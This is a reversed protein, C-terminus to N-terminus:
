KGIFSLDANAPIVISKIEHILGYEKADESNLFTREEMDKLIEDIPKKTTDSIVHAIKRQDNLLSDLKSKFVEENQTENNQFEVYTPHLFFFANNASFRQKGSCFILIASSGVQSFNYTYIPIKQEKLFERVDFAPTIKGGSSSIILHIAEVGDEVKEKITRQLANTTTQNIEAMFKIYAEKM